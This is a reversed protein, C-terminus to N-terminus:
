INEIEEELEINKPEYKASIAYKKAKKAFM